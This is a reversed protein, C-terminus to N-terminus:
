PVTQELLWDELIVQEVFPARLLTADSSMLKTLWPRNRVVRSVARLGLSAISTGSLQAAINNSLRTFTAPLINPEPGVHIVTEVGLSLTRDIVDWVKQPHDIWRTLIDRSNLDNYDLGGTVCSLIAPTPSVFGGPATALMVGARNPINKQWTIQTHMPPWRHRNPRLHVSKPLTERMARKFQYVTTGQGILLLTNPSLYSSVDIIGKGRNSIELCLKKVANLDIEPGRSFVIGMRCDHALQAADDALALIPTMVAAMDFLGGAVVATIEGLSYGFLLQAKDHRIGFFEDLLKLQALEMAVVMALSQPYTRLTGRERHRVRRLLNVKRGIAEGCIESGTKLYQEVIPGYAPHELLEPTKGLNTINYGRFAFATKEIQEPLVPNM